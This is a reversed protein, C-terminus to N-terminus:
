RSAARALALAFRHAQDTHWAEIVLGASALMAETSDRTFKYSNETWIDEGRAV